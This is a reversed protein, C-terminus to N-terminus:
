VNFADGRERIMAEFMKKGDRYLIEDLLTLERLRKLAASSLEYSVREKRSENAKIENLDLKSIASLCKLSDSMRETIGIFDFSELNNKALHLLEINSIDRLERRTREDAAAAIQWVQTNDTYELIRPDESLIFSEFTNEIAFKIPFHDEYDKKNLGSFFRYLSEIRKVPERLFTFIFDNDNLNIVHRSGIHGFLNITPKKSLEALMNGQDSKNNFTSNPLANGFMLRISSGATKPIHVFIFREKM